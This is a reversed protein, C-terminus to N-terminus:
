NPHVLCIPQAPGVHSTVSTLQDMYNWQELKWANNVWSESTWAVWGYTQDFYFTERTTYQSGSLGWRYVLAMLKGLTVNPQMPPTFTYNTPPWLQFDAGTATSPGGQQCTAPNPPGEMSYSLTDNTPIIITSYPQGVPPTTVCRPAIKWFNNGATDTPDYYQRYYNPSAPLPTALSNTFAFYVYNSDFASVDWGYGTNNSLVGRSWWMRNGAGDAWYEPYVSTNSSPDAAM